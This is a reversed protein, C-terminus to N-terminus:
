IPESLCIIRYTGNMDKRKVQNALIWTDADDHSAFPGFHEDSGDFYIYHVIWTSASTLDVREVTFTVNSM